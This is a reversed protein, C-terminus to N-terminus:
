GPGLRVFDINDLAFCINVTHTKGEQVATIVPKV